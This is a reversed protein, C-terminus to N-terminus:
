KKQSLDLTLRALYDFHEGTALRDMRFGYKGAYHDLLQDDIFLWPFRRGKCGKYSMRYEVEGYYKSNLQILFSGDDEMFLYRLDSSDLLIQGGPTLLQRATAFFDGLRNLCGVIGIGNMMLLLTDYQKEGSLQFYDEQLINHIGRKQMVECAGPSSELATVRYGQQQLWLSHPGACAGIDLIHGRCHRLAQQELYPMEDFSRFLYKVPITDTEAVNSWVDISLHDDHTEFYDMCAHGIVDASFNGPCNIQSTKM